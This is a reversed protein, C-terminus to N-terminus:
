ETELPADPHASGEPDKPWRFGTTDETQRPPEIQDGMVPVDGGLVAPLGRRRRNDNITPMM